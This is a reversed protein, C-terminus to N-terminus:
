DNHRTITLFHKLNCAAGKSETVALFLNRDHTVLGLGREIATEAILADRVNSKDQGGLEKLRKELKSRLEGNGYKFKDWRSTGYVGSETPVPEQPIESFLQKLQAKRQKDPTRELEDVQIHTAYLAPGGVLSSVDVEGDIVYNFINTDFMYGVLM